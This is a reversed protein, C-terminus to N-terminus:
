RFFRVIVLNSLIAMAVASIAGLAITSAFGTKTTKVLKKPNSVANSSLGFRNRINSMTDADVRMVMSMGENVRQCSDMKFNLDRKFTKVEGIQVKPTTVVEVKEEERPKEEEQLSRMLNTEKSMDFVLKPKEVRNKIGAYFTKCKDVIDKRTTAVYTKAINFRNDIANSVRNSADKITIQGDIVINEIILRTNGMRLTFRKSGLFQLSRNKEQKTVSFLSNGKQKVSTILGVLYNIKNSDIDKIIITESM